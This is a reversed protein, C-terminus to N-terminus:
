CEDCRHVRNGHDGGLRRGGRARPDPRPRDGGTGRGPRRDPDHVLRGLVCGAESGGIRCTDIACNAPVPAGGTANNWTGGPYATSKDHFEVTDVVADGGPGNVNQIVVDGAPAADVTIPGIDPLPVATGGVPLGFSGGHGPVFGYAIGSGGTVDVPIDGFSFSEAPTGSPYGDRGTDGGNVEPASALQNPPQVAGVSNFLNPTSNVAKGGSTTVFATTANTTQTWFETIVGQLQDANFTGGAGQAAPPFVTVSQVGTLSFEEGPAVSDPYTATLAAGLHSHILGAVLCDLPIWATNTQQAQAPATGVSAILM